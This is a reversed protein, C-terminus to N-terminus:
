YEAYVCLGLGVDTVLMQGKHECAARAACVASRVTSRATANDARSCDSVHSCRAWDDSGGQVAMRLAVTLGVCVACLCFSLPRHLSPSIFVPALSVGLSGSPHTGNM